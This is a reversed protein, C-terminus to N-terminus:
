EMFIKYKQGLLNKNRLWDFLPKELWCFRIQDVITCVIYIGIVSLISHLIFLDTNYNGAVDLTDKWLWQRMADSHAHILLVGFCSQAIRNIIKSQPINMDKFCMFMCVGTVVALVKYSDNIFYYQDVKVGLEANVVRVFIVSVISLLIAGGLWIAWRVNFLPQYIRIYSSIFYLVCFWTVYNTTLRNPLLTGLGTYIGLLLILLYKHQLKTM